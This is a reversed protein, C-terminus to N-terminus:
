SYQKSLDIQKITRNVKLKPEKIGMEKYKRWSEKMKEVLQKAYMFEGYEEFAHRLHVDLVKEDKPNQELLKRGIRYESDAIEM